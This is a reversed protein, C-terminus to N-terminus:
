FEVLEEGDVEDDIAEPKLDKENQKKIQAMLQSVKKQYPDKRDMKIEEVEIVNQEDEIQQKQKALTNLINVKAADSAQKMLLHAQEVTLSQAFVKAEDTLGAAVDSHQKIRDIAMLALQLHYVGSNADGKDLAGCRVANVSNELYNLIDEYSKIQQYNAMWTEARDRLSASPHYQIVKPLNKSGKPRPM